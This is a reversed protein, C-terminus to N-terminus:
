NFRFSLDINIGHNILGRLYTLNLTTRKINYGIGISTYLDNSKLSYSIPNVLVYNEKVINFDYYKSLIDSTSQKVKLNTITLDGLVVVSSKSYSFGTNSTFYFNNINKSFLIEFSYVDGKAKVDFNKINQFDGFISNPINKFGISTYGVLASIYISSDFHKNFFLRDIRKKVAIGYLNFPIKIPTIFNSNYRLSLETENWIGINLQPIPLGIISKFGLNADDIYSLNIISNPIFRGEVNETIEQGNAVLFSRQYGELWIGFNYNTSKEGGIITSMIINKDGELPKIFNANNYEFTRMSSDIFVINAKLSLEISFKALPKATSAWNKSITFLGSNILPKSYGTILTVVDGKSGQILKDYDQAEAKFIFIIYFLILIIAKM